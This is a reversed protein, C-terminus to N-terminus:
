WPNRLTQLPGRPLGETVAAGLASVSGPVLGCVEGLVPGPPAERDWVLRSAAFAM